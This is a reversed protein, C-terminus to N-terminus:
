YFVLGHNKPDAYGYGIDPNWYGYSWPGASPDTLTSTEAFGYFKEPIINEPRYYRLEFHLHPGGATGFYLYKSVLDGKQVYTGDMFLSDAEDLDLDIHAYISSLIGIIQGSDDLINKSITLYHRYIAVNTYTHVYGDHDAFLNVNTKHNGVHIDTAPHYQSPGSPGEKEAGFMGAYPVSFAPIQNTGDQLPNHLQEAQCYYILRNIENRFSSNSSSNYYLPTLLDPFTDSGHDPFSLLLRFFSKYPTPSALIDSIPVEIVSGASLRSINSDTWDSLNSSHEIDYNVGLEGNWILSSGSVDNSISLSTARVTNVYFISLVSVITIFIYNIIKKM